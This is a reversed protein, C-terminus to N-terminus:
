PALTTHFQSLTVLVVLDHTLVQLVASAPV